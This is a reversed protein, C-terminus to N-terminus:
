RGIVKVFGVFESRDKSLPPLFSANLFYQFLARVLRGLVCLDRPHVDLNLDNWGDESHCSGDKGAGVVEPDYERSSYSLVSGGNRYAHRSGDQSVLIWNFQIASKLLHSPTHFYVTYPFKDCVTRNVAARQM